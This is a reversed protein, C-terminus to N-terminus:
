GKRKVQERTKKKKKKGLGKLGNKGNNEDGELLPISTLTNLGLYKEIDDSSKVTDDIMYTAIFIAAMAFIGILTGILVNKLLNPSVPDEEIYGLEVVSPEETKMITSINTRAVIAFEDVIDKALVPDPDKATMVLIRTDAPNSFTMQELVEEYTKDLGLNEIVEEVVPRSQVLEIYDKTLSTGIQIDALSTISTSTSLIYLKSTSSYVEEICYHTFVGTLAGVIMGAALISWIRHVLLYLIELLDIEVTEEQKNM